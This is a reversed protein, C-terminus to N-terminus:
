VDRKSVSKNPHRQKRTNSHQEDKDKRKNMEKMVKISNRVDETTLVAGSDSENDGSQNAPVMTADQSAFPDTAQSGKPELFMGLEGMRIEDWKINNKGPPKKRKFLWDFLKM